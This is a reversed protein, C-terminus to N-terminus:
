LSHFLQPGTWCHVAWKMHRRFRHHGSENYWKSTDDFQQTLTRWWRICLHTTHLVYIATYRETCYVFLCVDFSNTKIKLRREKSKSRPSTSDEFEKALASEIAEKLLRTFPCRTHINCFTIVTKNTTYTM